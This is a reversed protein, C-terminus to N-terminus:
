GVLWGVQTVRTFVIIKGSFTAVVLDAHGGKTFCGSAVATISENLSTRWVVPPVIRGLLFIPPPHNPESLVLQFACLLFWHETDKVVNWVRASM